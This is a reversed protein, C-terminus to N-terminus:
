TKESIVLGALLHEAARLRTLVREKGLVSLTGFLPPAVKKGTVAVRIIGFLQGAKLGLEDVLARLVAELASEDFSPVEELAQLARRLAKLSDSTEMKKGVLLHPDYVIEQTFFFDVLEVADSLLKVGALGIGLAGLRNILTRRDIGETGSGNTEPGESDSAATEEDAMMCLNVDNIWKYGEPPDLIDLVSRTDSSM